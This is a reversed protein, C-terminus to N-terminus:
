GKIMKIVRKFPFLILRCLLKTLHILGYIPFIILCTIITIVRLLPSVKKFELVVDRFSKKIEEM